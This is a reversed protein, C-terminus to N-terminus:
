CIKKVLMKTRNTVDPSSGSRLLLKCGCLIDLNCERCNDAESEVIIELLILVHLSYDVSEQVLSTASRILGPISKLLPRVVMVNSKLRENLSMLAAVKVNSPLNGTLVEALPKTEELSIQCIVSM